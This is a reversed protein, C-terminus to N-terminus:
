PLPPPPPTNAIHALLIEFERAEDLQKQLDQQLSTLSALNYDASTRRAQLTIGSIGLAVVDANAQHAQYWSWLRKHSPTNPNYGLKRAEILAANYVYYYARGIATRQKSEQAEKRLEHAFLLFDRWDFPM